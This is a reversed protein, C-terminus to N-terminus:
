RSIRHTKQIATSSSSRSTQPTEFPNGMWKSIRKEWYPKAERYEEKKDGNLIMDFWQRSIPLILTNTKPNPYIPIAEDEIFYDENPKMKGHLDSPKDLLGIMNTIREPKM